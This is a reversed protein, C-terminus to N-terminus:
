YPVNSWKKREKAGIEKYLYADLKSLLKAMQEQYTVYKNQLKGQRDVFDYLKRLTLSGTKQEPFINILENYEEIYQINKLLEKQLKMMTDIRKKIKEKDNDSIEVGKRKLENIQDKFVEYIFQACNIKKKSSGTQKLVWGYNGGGMQARWIGSVYPTHSMGFPFRIGGRVRRIPMAGILRPRSKLYHRFTETDYKIKYALPPRKYMPLKLEKAYQTPRALGIAEETKGKIKKNLIGPNSNVYAVTLDLYVLLNENNAKLKAVIEEFKNNSPYKKRIELNIWDSVKIVKDINTNLVRDYVNEVKFGFHKLTKLAVMPHMSNIEEKAVNYFDKFNALTICKELSKADDNLLCKYIYKRCDKKDGQHLSTYCKNGYKMLKKAEDSKAGYPIKKGDKEMYFEGDEDIFWINEDIMDMFTRDEYIEKKPVDVYKAVSIRLIRKRVFRDELVSFRQRNKFHQEVCAMDKCFHFNTGQHTYMHYAGTPVTNLIKHYLGRFFEKNNEDWNATSETQLRGDYYTYHISNVNFKSKVFDPLDREFLTVTSGPMLKKLNFRHTALGAADLTLGGNFKRQANYPVWDNGVRKLLIVYKNYFRQTDQTVNEWNAYVKNWLNIQYQSTLDMYESAFYKQIVSRFVSYVLSSLGHLVEKWWPDIYVTMANNNDWNVTNFIYKHLAKRIRKHYVERITDSNVLTNNEGAAIPTADVIPVQDVDGDGHKGAIIEAVYKANKFMFEKIKPKLQQVIEQQLTAYTVNVNTAAMKKLVGQPSYNVKDFNIARGGQDFNPHGQIRTGATPQGNAMPDLNPGINKTVMGAAQFLNVLFGQRPNWDNAAVGNGLFRDVLQDLTLPNINVVGGEYIQLNGITAWIADFNTKVAGANNAVGSLRSGTNLVAWRSALIAMVTQFESTSRWLRDSQVIVPKALAYQRIVSSLANNNDNQDFLWPTCVDGGTCAGPDPSMTTRGMNRGPATMIYNRRNPAMLMMFKRSRGLITMMRGDKVFQQPNTYGGAAVNVYMETTSGVAGLKNGAGVPKDFARHFHATEVLWDIPENHVDNDAMNGRNDYLSARLVDLMLSGDGLEKGGAKEMARTFLNGRTDKPNTTFLWKRDDYLDRGESSALLSM